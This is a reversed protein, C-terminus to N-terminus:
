ASKRRRGVWVAGLGLALWGLTGGSIPNSGVSCGGSSASPEDGAAMVDDAPDAANGDDDITGMEEKADDEPLGDSVQPEQVSSETSVDGSEPAGLTAVAGDAAVGDAAAELIGGGSSPGWVKDYPPQCSTSTEETCNGESDCAGFGSEACSWDTPCDADSACEIEDQYCWKDESQHCDNCAPEELPRDGDVAIEPCDCVEYSTCTFGEGCDGDSECPLEWTAACQQFEGPECDPPSEAACDTGEACDILIQDCFNEFTGCVMYDGCEADSECSARDCSYWPEDGGDYTNCVFGVDCTVDGCEEASASAVLGLTFLTTGLSLGMKFATLRTFTM